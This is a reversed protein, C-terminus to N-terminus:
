DETAAQEAAELAAVAQLTRREVVIEGLLQAQRVVFQNLKMLELMALFTVIVESKTTASQFLDEFRRAEGPAFHDLLFEIKDAVTYRDDIIDGFDHSEEFRKLVNQFARILDFISVEALPAPEPAPLEPADPQHAFRGEQEIERLSLFGAADKFKKYEILQRILEWRPDDEEADEEPPQDVRPLLTRSKMYMLNAAMVIFESALDINLLKFTNIYDLYQKTIREISIAHIDLEDKKILYLLLDLPGEFIELRVKYDSAAEM